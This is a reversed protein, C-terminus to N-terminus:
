VLLGEPESEIHDAIHLFNYTGSDNLQTLDRTIPDKDAAYRKMRHGGEFTRLGVWKQVKDQDDLDGGIIFGTTDRNLNNGTEKEYVECMVGLCCHGETNHLRLKTQTFDGSRLAVLVKKMNENIM